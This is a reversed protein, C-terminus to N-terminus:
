HGPEREEEASCCFLSFPLVCFFFHCEKLAEQTPTQHRQSHNTAGGNWNVSKPARRQRESKGGEMRCDEEQLACRRRVCEWLVGKAESQKSRKERRHQTIVVCACMSMSLYASERSQQAGMAVVGARNIKTNDRTGTSAPGNRLVPGHQGRKGETEIAVNSVRRRADNEGTM